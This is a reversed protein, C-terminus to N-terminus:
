LTPLPSSFKGPEKWGHLKENDLFTHFSCYLGMIQDFFKIGINLEHVTLELKLGSHLLCLIDDELWFSEILGDDIPGEPGEDDSFDEPELQPGEWAKVKMVGLPKIKGTAGKHDPIDLVKSVFEPTAREIEVIEYAMVKTSVIYAGDNKAKVFMPDTGKFAIGAQFIRTGQSDSFGAEITVCDDEDKIDSEWIQSSIYQGQYCGGCISSAAVNFEGPLKTRINKIAILDREALDCIRRAAM